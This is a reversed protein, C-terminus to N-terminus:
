ILAFNIERTAYISNNYFNIKDYIKKKTPIEYFQRCFTKWQRYLVFIFFFWVRSEYEIDRTWFNSM